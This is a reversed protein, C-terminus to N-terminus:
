RKDLRELEEIYVEGLDKGQMQPLQISEYEVRGRLLLTQKLPPLPETTFVWIKGTADQLQYAGAGLFPAHSEITGEVYVKSGVKNKEQLSGIEALNLNIWTESQFVNNCSTLSFLFLGLISIKFVPSVRIQFLLKM